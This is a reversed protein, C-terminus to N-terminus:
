ELEAGDFTPPPNIGSWGDLLIFQNLSGEYFLFLFTLMQATSVWVQWVLFNADPGNVGMGAFSFLLLM